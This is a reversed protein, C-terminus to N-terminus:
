LPHEQVLGQQQLYTSSREHLEPSQIEYSVDRVHECIRDFGNYVDFLMPGDGQIQDTFLQFEKLIYLLSDLQIWQADSINVEPYKIGVINLASKM